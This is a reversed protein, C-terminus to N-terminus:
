LQQYVAFTLRDIVEEYDGFLMCGSALIHGGGGFNAAVANVNARKSRLSAKYQGKKVEMLAIAVEVSDISLPFDVFGETQSKDTDTEAFDQQTVTIFALRDDLAFRIKSMIRGYLIARNKTQRSFMAYGIDCFDAGKKKLEAATLFTKESVDRHSFNGSDTLLGLALLDAIEKTIEFGAESLVEPLLECTATCDFVYNYKAFKNNSVHHDINVTAGKFKAFTASYTGMRTVDACDVCILTDFNDQPLPLSLQVDEMASFLKLRQPVPDDCIAYARKGANNLALVLSLMSGLADGDPRVHCFVAVTQASKLQRAIEALTSNNM